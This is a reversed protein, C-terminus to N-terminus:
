YVLFLAACCNKVDGGHREKDDRLRLFLEHLDGTSVLRAMTSYFDYDLHERVEAYTLVDDEISEPLLEPLSVSRRFRQAAEISEPLLEPLSVSRRFRQASLWIAGAHDLRQELESCAARRQLLEFHAKADVALQRLLPRVQSDMRQAFHGYLSSASQEFDMAIILADGLTTMPLYGLESASTGSQEM